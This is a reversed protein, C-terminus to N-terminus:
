FLSKCTKFIENDKQWCLSLGKKAPINFDRQCTNCDGPALPNLFLLIILHLWGNCNVDAILLQSILSRCLFDPSYITCWTYSLFPLSVVKFIKIEMKKLYQPKMPSQINSNTIVRQKVSPTTNPQQPRRGSSAEDQWLAVPADHSIHHTCDLPIMYFLEQKIIIPKLEYVQCIYYLLQNIRCTLLWTNQKCHHQDSTGTRLVSWPLLWLVRQTPCCLRSGQTHGGLQGWM